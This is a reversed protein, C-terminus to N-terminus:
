RLKMAEPDWQVMKEQEYSLNALLAAGAARFGFVADEVVQQRSRVSAFFNAFHDYSDSYGDPAVYEEGESAPEASSHVTPHEKEFQALFKSQTPTSWSDINYDPKAPPPSRRVVVNLRSIQMTGESGVFLFGENESAGNVFNVRLHLNFGQPFDFLGLLVDPQDRGDKWHRIGGMAVAKTPGSSGTIFHTGSFLHVFLDGAVGSGFAKFKRWNFFHNANFPEKPASGLFRPWDITEPSADPPISGTFAGVPFYPNRDWWANIVTVKGIAGSELLKKAKKYVTSSVRQSGVQLIRKTKNATEIIEPGDSYLHIMPKELYVDKGANMADIAAQKHWHDSTAILVADVDKRALIEHYDRTTFISDGWIERSRALRGDYCDAVAVLRVGPVQLAVKTDYQGQSGAGILALQIQDNASIAHPAAGFASSPLGNLLVSGMTAEIGTKLFHRRNM